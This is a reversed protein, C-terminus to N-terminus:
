FWVDDITTVTTIILDDDEIFADDKKNETYSNLTEATRTNSVVIIADPYEGEIWDGDDYHEIYQDIRKKIVFNLTTENFIDIFYDDRKNKTTKIRNVYLDPLPQPFTEYEQLEAKTFVNFIDPQTKKIDLYMKFIAICQDIFPQGVSRDKYRAHLVQKNLGHEDKLLKLATPTLHYSAPRRDIKYSKEYRRTVYGYGSLINLANQMTWKLVGKHEALLSPSVFRFKYIVKLIQLQKANLKRQTKITM